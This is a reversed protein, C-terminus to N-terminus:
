RQLLEKILLMNLHYRYRQLRLCLLLQQLHDLKHLKALSQMKGVSPFHLDDPVLPMM